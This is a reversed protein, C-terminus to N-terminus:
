KYLYEYESGAREKAGKKFFLIIDSTLHNKGIKMLRLACREKSDEELISGVERSQDRDM